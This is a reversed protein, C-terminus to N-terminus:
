AHLVRSSLVFPEVRDLLSLALTEMVKKGVDSATNRLSEVDADLQDFPDLVDVLSAEGVIVDLRVVNNDSLRLLGVGPMSFEFQDVKTAGRLVHNVAIV